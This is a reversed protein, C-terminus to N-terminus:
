ASRYFLLRGGPLLQDLLDFDRLNRTVLMLGAKRAQLHILADNLCTKEQGAQFGGLRFLMGALAGATGWADADPVVIRRAPIDGVTASLQALVARTGPHAPDLLGFAHTLEAVCVASHYSVRTGLLRDLADPSRGQLVDLYVCTDLLLPPGVAAAKEVFPLEADHRRVPPPGARQARLRRLAHGLDFAL